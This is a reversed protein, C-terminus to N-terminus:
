GARYQLLDVEPQAELPRQLPRFRLQPVLLDPHNHICQPICLPQM